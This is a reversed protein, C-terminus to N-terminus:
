QDPPKVADASRAISRSPAEMFISRHFRRVVVQEVMAAMM